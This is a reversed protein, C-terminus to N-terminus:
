SDAQQIMIENLTQLSLPKPPEMKSTLNDPSFFPIAVLSDSVTKGRQNTYIQITVSAQSKSSDQSSIQSQHIWLQNQDAAASAHSAFM